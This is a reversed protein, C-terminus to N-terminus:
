SSSTPRFPLEELLRNDVMAIWLSEPIHKTAADVLAPVRDHRSTSLAISRIGLHSLGYSVAVDFPSLIHSQCVRFFRDRWALKAADSPDQPNMPKYDFYETPASSHGSLTDGNSSGRSLFGGHLVASNIIPIQRAALSDMLDLLEKPHSMVTFSNALMVWDFKCLRDLERVVRWDKCGIGIAQAKGQKQLDYLADYAALIDDLRRQRDSADTAVALYEDPDHVSLMQATYDGLLECGEVWCRMIGQYSIDQVADHKLGLWVGPEFTPEAARLPVRRWGLKNSILVHKPDVALRKLEQGLVELALGAGYKGASDIAVPSNAVHAPAVHAPIAKLWAEVLKSKDADSPLVFLNGLTTTGFVVRPLKIREVM